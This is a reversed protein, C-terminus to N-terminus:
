PKDWLENGRKRVENEILDKLENQFYVTKTQTKPKRHKPPPPLNQALKLPAHMLESFVNEALPKTLQNKSALALPTLATQACSYFTNAFSLFIEEDLETPLPNEFTCQAYISEVQRLGLKALLLEREELPHNTKKNLIHLARIFATRSESFKELSALIRGRLIFLKVKQEITLSDIEKQTGLATKLRSIGSSKEAPWNPLLEYTLALAEQKKERRLFCEALLLRADINHESIKKLEIEAQELDGLHFLTYAYNYTANPHLYTNQIFFKEWLERAQVFAGQNQEHLALNFANTAQENNLSQKKRLELQQPAPSLLFPKSQTQDSSTEYVKYEYTITQPKPTAEVLPEDTSQESTELSRGSFIGCGSLFSCTLFFIFFANHRTNLKEM